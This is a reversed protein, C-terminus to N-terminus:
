EEKKKIYIYIVHIIYGLVGGVTNMIIDDVDFRGVRFLLQTTEVILTFIFSCVFTQWFGVKNQFLKPLLFGFPMFAVINGAINVLVATTGLLERYTIFRKIEKFPELNYQYSDMIYRDDSLFLLYIMIIIYLLFLLRFLAKGKKGKKGM